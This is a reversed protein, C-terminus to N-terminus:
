GSERLGAVLARADGARVLSEGVLVADYGAARMRAADARDRIGSEAVTVVDEGLLPALREATALDVEFTSLDRNNVGIVRAGAAGAVDVEGADHVEVLAEMGALRTEALLGALAQEDLAAVILLVADAGCARAEWIQVPDLIFDKRLVPVAVTARVLRLDDPSGQFFRPETLVSVASAGGREYEAALAAPDLDADISGRSPSARKIEAIVSLDPGTLAAVFDRAPERALAAVRLDASQQRLRPLRGRVDAIIDFLM